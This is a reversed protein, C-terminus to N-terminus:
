GDNHTLLSDICVYPTHDYPTDGASAVQCTQYLNCCWGDGCPTACPFVARGFSDRNSFAARSAIGIMPFPFIATLIEFIKNM